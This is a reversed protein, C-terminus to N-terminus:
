SGHLVRLFGDVKKGAWAKLHDHIVSADSMTIDRTVEDPLQNLTSIFSEMISTFRAEVQQKACLEQSAVKRAMRLKLVEEIKKLKSLEDEDCQDLPKEIAM